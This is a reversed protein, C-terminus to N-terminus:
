QEQQWASLLERWNMREIALIKQPMAYHYAVLELMDTGPIKIQKSEHIIIVNGSFDSNYQFITGKEGRYSHM